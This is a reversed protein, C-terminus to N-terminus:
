HRPPSGYDGRPVRHLYLRRPLFGLNTLIHLQSPLDHLPSLTVQRLVGTERLHTEATRPAKGKTERELDINHSCVIKKDLSMFTDLEVATFGQNIAKKISSATNEPEKKHLGRHAIFLPTTKKYIHKGSLPTWFCLHRVLVCVLLIFIM